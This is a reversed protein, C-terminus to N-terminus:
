DRKEKIRAAKGKLDRLYYLKARRVDGRRIVEFKSIKPSHLPLTREVGVGHSIKRITFTERAGGGQRKIVIGEFTQLREKGGEVVKVMLRVTDGPIFEPINDRLQNKEIDKIIDNM